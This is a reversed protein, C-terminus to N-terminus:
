GIGFADQSMASTERGSSVIVDFRSCQTVSAAARTELNARYVGQQCLETGM